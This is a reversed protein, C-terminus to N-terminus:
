IKLKAGLIGWMQRGFAAGLTLFPKDMFPRDKAERESATEVRDFGAEDQNEIHSNQVFAVEARTTAAMSNFASSSSRSVPISIRRQGGAIGGDKGEGRGREM